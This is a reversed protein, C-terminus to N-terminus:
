IVREGARLVAAVAHIAAPDHLLDGNVALLDASYGPRIRGHRDGIGCEIAADATVARLVELMPLGASALQSVAYPLVNHPKAAGIGCDSTVVIRAGSAWVRQITRQLEPLLAAIRPRPVVGPLQGTTISVTVGSTVLSALVAADVGVGDSTMFSCHQISDVRAAVANAIGATGHAHATIRLGAVHAAKRAAILEDVSFQPVWSHTGATLEGGTAVIKIVDVGRQAHRAVMARIQEPGDCEGGFFWLHGGVTTLAPGSGLIRPGAAPNLELERRLRLALYARDGLDRAVTIGCALMSRATALMPEYLEDDSRESARGVPDESADFCFHVHGDVLGPLLTAAGLDFDVPGAGGATVSEITNGQCVVVPDTMVADGDFLQAARIVITM